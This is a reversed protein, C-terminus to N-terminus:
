AQEKNYLNVIKWLPKMAKSSNLDKTLNARAKVVRQIDLQEISGSLVWHDFLELVQRRTSLLWRRYIPALEAQHEFDLASLEELSHYFTVETGQWFSQTIAPEAGADGPRRFWAAKVQRHLAAAMDGATDLILKVHKTFPQQVDPDLSHVPLTSEYWCMAKMNSMEFGFCWLRVRPRRVRTNFHAVVRAADPQHDDNGLVLGLWNRYGGGAQRGKISLPANAGKSDLSYPTLPHTWAGTYNTGGHRTRYHRIVRVNTVGCVSCDGQDATSSDMRIRRPMSWYAQLPHVTEPPTDLGGKDDSTRTPALWPLVDNLAKIPPHDLADQPLVNLWLKQWLSTNEDAPLLLTTLPGGGRLSTRIGRGGSPANIQLTLLAQAFCSECLGHNQAPKNFFRNSSSGADILLELVPLQNVEHPLQLDQMFAPGDNELLYAHSYPAFATKLAAEDPPSAYRKRWEEMDQPAYATQLLGILFQFLAGRFDPRPAGLDCWATNGLQCPSILEESEVGAARIWATSLLDM